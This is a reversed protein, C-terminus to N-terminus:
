FIRDKVRFKMTELQQRLEIPHLDIKEMEMLQRIIALTGRIPLGVRIAETRAAYDDLVVIDPQTELAIAIAEVEGLGMRRNMAATLRDNRTKAITVIGNELCASLADAAADGKELVESKVSVPVIVADFLPLSAKLLDLKSLFIWPSSNFVARM